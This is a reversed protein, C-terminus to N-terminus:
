CNFDCPFPVIAEGPGPCLKEQSKQGEARVGQKTLRTWRLDKEEQNGLLEQEGAEVRHCGKKGFAGRGGLPAATGWRSVRQGCQGCCVRSEAERSAAGATRQEM